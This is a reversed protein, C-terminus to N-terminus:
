GGGCRGRRRVGALGSLVVRMGFGFLNEYNTKIGLSILVLKDYVLM